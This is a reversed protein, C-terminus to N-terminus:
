VIKYVFPLHRMFVNNIIFLQVVIYNFSLIFSNILLDGVIHFLVLMNVKPYESIIIFVIVFQM